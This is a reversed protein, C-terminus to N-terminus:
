QLTCCARCLVDRKRLQREEYGLAPSGLAERMRNLRQERRIEARTAAPPEIDCLSMGSELWLGTYEERSIEATEAATNSSNSGLDRRMRELHQQHRKEQRTTEMRVSKAPVKSTASKNAQHDSARASLEISSTVTESDRPSPPPLADSPLHALRLRSPLSLMAATITTTDRIKSDSNSALNFLDSDGCLEDRHPLLFTFIFCAVSEDGGGGGRVACAVDCLVVVACLSWVVSLNKELASSSLLLMSSFLVSQCATRFSRWGAM